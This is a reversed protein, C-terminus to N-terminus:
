EKRDSVLASFDSYLKDYKKKLIALKDVQM